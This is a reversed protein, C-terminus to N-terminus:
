DMFLLPALHLSFIFDDDLLKKLPCQFNFHGGEPIFIITLFAHLQNEDFKLRSSFFHPCEDWNAARRVGVWTWEGKGGFILRMWEWFKVWRMKERRPSLILPSRNKGRSAAKKECECKEERNMAGWIIMMMGYFIDWGILKRGQVTVNRISCGFEHNKAREIGTGKWKCGLFLYDHYLKSLILSLSQNVAMM